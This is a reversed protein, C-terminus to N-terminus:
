FGYLLGKTLDTIQRFASQCYPIFLFTSFILLYSFLQQNNQQFPLTYGEQCQETNYSPYTTVNGKQPRDSTCNFVLILCAVSVACGKRIIWFYARFIFEQRNHFVFINIM